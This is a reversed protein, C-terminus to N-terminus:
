VKAIIIWNAGDSKVTISDNQAALVFTAADDITEAGAGDITVANASVDIKKFTYERGSIGVSTPLTITFAGGTADGTVMSDLINPTYAATKNVVPTAIPGIVDLRGKPNDTGVGLGGNTITIDNTGVGAVQIGMKRTANDYQFRADQSFDSDGFDFGCVGVNGSYFAMQSNFSPDATSQIILFHTTGAPPTGATGTILMHLRNKPDTTNFGVFGSPLEVIGSYELGDETSKVKPLKSAKGVYDAPTDILAKFESVGGLISQIINSSM